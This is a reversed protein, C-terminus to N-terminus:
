KGDHVRTERRGISLYHAGAAPGDLRDCHRAIEVADIALDFPPDEAGGGFLSGCNSHALAFAQTQRGDSISSGPQPADIILYKAAMRKALTAQAWGHSSPASIPYPM